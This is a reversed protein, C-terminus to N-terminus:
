KKPTCKHFRTRISPFDTGLAFPETEIMFWLNTSEQYTITVTKTGFTGGRPAVFQANLIKNGKADKNLLSVVGEYRTTIGISPFQTLLFDKKNGNKEEVKLEAIISEGNLAVNSIERNVSFAKASLEDCMLKARFFIAEGFALCPLLSLSTIFIFIKLM